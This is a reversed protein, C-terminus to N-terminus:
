CLCVRLAATWLHTSRRLRKCTQAQPLPRDAVSRQHCTSNIGYRTYGGQFHSGKETIVCPNASNSYPMRHQIPATSWFVGPSTCALTACVPLLTYKSDVCKTRLLKFTCKSETCETCSTAHSGACRQMPVLASLVSGACRQMSVLASLALYQAHQAYGLRGGTSPTV